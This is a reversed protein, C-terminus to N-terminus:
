TAILLAAFPVVNFLFVAAKYLTIVTYHIADFQEVSIKFWRSHMRYIWDHMFRFMLFYLTLFGFNLILSWQLFGYVTQITM